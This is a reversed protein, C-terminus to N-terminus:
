RDDQALARRAARRHETATSIPLALARAIRPM